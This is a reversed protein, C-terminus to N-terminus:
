PDLDWSLPSFLQVFERPTLSIKDFVKSELYTFLKDDIELGTEKFFLLLDKMDIRDKKMLTAQDFIQELYQSTINLKRKHEEILYFTAKLVRVLNTFNRISDGHEEHNNSLSKGTLINQM